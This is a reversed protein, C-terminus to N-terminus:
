KRLRLSLVEDGVEESELMRKALPKVAQRAQELAARMAGIEEESVEIDSTQKPKRDAAEDAM